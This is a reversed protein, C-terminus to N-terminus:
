GCLFQDGVIYTRKYTQICLRARPLTIQPTNDSCSQCCCKRNRFQSFDAIRATISVCARVHLVPFQAVVYHYSPIIYM